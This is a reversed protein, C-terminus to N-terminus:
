KILRRDKARLLIREKAERCWCDKGIGKCSCGSVFDEICEEWLRNQEELAEKIFEKMKDSDIEFAHDPFSVEYLLTNTGAHINEYYYDSDDATSPDQLYNKRDIREEFEEVKKEIFGEAKNSDTM